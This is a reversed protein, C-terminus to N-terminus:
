RATATTTRVAPGAPSASSLRFSSTSTPTPSFATATSTSAASRSRALAPTTTTRLPTATSKMQPVSPSWLVSARHIARRSRASAPGAPRERVWSDYGSYCWWGSSYHHCGVRQINATSSYVSSVTKTATGGGLNEGGCGGQSCSWASSGYYITGSCRFRVQFGNLAVRYGNHYASNADTDVQIKCYAPSWQSEVYCWDFGSDPACDSGALVPLAGGLVLACAVATSCFIGLSKGRSTM